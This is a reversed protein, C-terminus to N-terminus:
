RLALPNNTLRFLKIFRPDDRLPDLKPETGFWIIWPDREAFVREFQEFAADREGLAVYAMALFYPKVYGSSAAAKVEELVARAEGERGAAALAFCLNYKPLASGPMLEISQRLAKVAEDARGIQELSNGLQLYGQPYNKDLDIMQYAKAIAEDYRRMQYMSWATLTMARLSLPDLEEARLIERAGEEFRGTGV